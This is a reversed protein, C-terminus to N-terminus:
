AERRQREIARDIVAEYVAAKQEPTANRIFDSLPTSPLLKDTM